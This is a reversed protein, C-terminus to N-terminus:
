SESFHKFYSLTTKLPIKSMILCTVWQFFRSRSAAGQPEVQHPPPMVMVGWDWLACPGESTPSGCCRRPQFAQHRGPALAPARRAPSQIEPSPVGCLVM